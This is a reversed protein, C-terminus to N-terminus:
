QRPKRKKLEHNEPNNVQQAALQQNPKTQGLVARSTEWAAKKQAGYLLLEGRQDAETATGDKIAVALANRLDYLRLLETLIYRLKANESTLRLAELAMDRLADIGDKVSATFKGCNKANIRFNEIQEVSLETTDTTM